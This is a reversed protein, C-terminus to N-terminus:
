LLDLFERPSYAPIRGALALVHADGSVLAARQGAAVALLYDDGPDLSRIPPEEPPDEVLTAGEALWAVM